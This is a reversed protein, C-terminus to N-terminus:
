SWWDVPKWRRRRGDHSTFSTDQAVACRPLSGACVIYRLAVVGNTVTGKLGGSYTTGDPSPTERAAGDYPRSGRFAWTRAKGSKKEYSRTAAKQIGRTQPDKALAEQGQEALESSQLKTPARETESMIKGSNFPKGISADLTMM